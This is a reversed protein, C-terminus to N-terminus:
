VFNRRSKLELSRLLNLDSKLTQGKTTLYNGTMIGSAGSHFVFPHLEMLNHIRGGCIIIESRPLMYRFLSIIKLCKLPTLSNQSELPTGKIPTLFNIPVSDVELQKLTLALELIQDDSEGIGFIGGSCISLGTRKAQEITEIREEYSHSSCIAPYHSKSTELNHHYRTVGAKVLIDFDEKGLTGLSVCYDLKNQDLESIAEAITDVEKRSLRKGSTVISYRNIPTDIAKRAGEQLDHKPMLSYKSITAKSVSSQACFTCDETCRGSKGNCITCLHISNGHFAKRILNSGALLYFVSEDPIQAIIKYEDIIPNYGDVIKESLDLFYKPDLKM